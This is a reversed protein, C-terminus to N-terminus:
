LGWAPMRLVFGDLMAALTTAEFLRASFIMPRGGLRSVFQTIAFALLTAFVGYALYNSPFKAYVLAVRGLAISIAAASGDLGAMVSQLAVSRPKINAPLDTALPAVSSTLSATSTLDRM